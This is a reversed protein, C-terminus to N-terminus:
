GIDVGNGVGEEIGVENGVRGRLEEAWQGWEGGREWEKVVGWGM